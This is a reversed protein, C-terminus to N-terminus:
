LSSSSLKLSRATEDVQPDPVLFDPPNFPPIIGKDVQEIHATMKDLTARAEVRLDRATPNRRPQGSSNPEQLVVKRVLAPSWTRGTPTSTGEANLEEAIAQLTSGQERRERIREAVQPDLQRPRGLRVGEAKRQALAESTRASIIRREWEAVSATVNALLGGTPTTM